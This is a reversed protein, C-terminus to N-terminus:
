NFIIWFLLMAMLLDVGFSKPAAASKGDDSSPAQDSPGPSVAQSPGSVSPTIPTPSPAPSSIPTITEVPSPAQPRVHSAGRIPSPGPSHHNTKGPRSPAPSPSSIPTIKHVPPVHRVGHIPSPAPPLVHTIGKVPAPAPSSIPTHKQVPSHAPPLVHTVQRIPSPAPPQVHSIGQFPSPAPSFVPTNQKVPSPAHPVEQVPSPAHSSVPSIGQFPSPAQSSVPSIGQFPSPASTPSIYTYNRPAMVLIIIKQGKKCNDAQGSIFFFFGPHDLDFTSYDGKNELVEIPNSKSCTIYDEQDVQLVSDTGNEYKFFLVQFSSIAGDFLGGNHDCCLQDACVDFVGYTGNALILRFM